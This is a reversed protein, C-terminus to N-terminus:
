PRGATLRELLQLGQELDLATHVHAIRMGLRVMTFAIDPRIGVVVTEAGRLRAMEAITGLVHSGYSDLVDLAAM